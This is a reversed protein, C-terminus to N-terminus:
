DFAIELQNGTIFAFDFFDQKTHFIGTPRSFINNQLRDSRSKGTQAFLFFVLAYGQYVDAAAGGVQSNIAVSTRNERLNDGNSSGDDGAINGSHALNCFFQGFFQFDGTASTNHFLTIGVM